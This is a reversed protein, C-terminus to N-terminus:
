LGADSDATESAMVVVMMGDQFDHEIGDPGKVRWVHKRQYLSHEAPLYRNIREKTTVTRFGGSHYFMIGSENFTVIRTRHFLVYILGQQTAGGTSPLDRVLHTNHGIKRSDRGALLADADAYSTPRPANHNSLPDKRTRENSLM